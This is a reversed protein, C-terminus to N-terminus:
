GNWGAIQVKFNLFVPDGSSFLDSGNRAASPNVTNVSVNGFNVVTAGASAFISIANSGATNGRWNVGLDEGTVLTSAAQLGSPLTMTAASAGPSNANFAGTVFLFPGLRSWYITVSGGTMGTFTPTYAVPTGPIRRNLIQWNSGDSTLWLCENQTALTTTTVGDITQSSTTAITIQNFTSDTKKLYYTKGAVSAATPLTATFAGGSASLLVVSDNAGISYTTTQSTQVSLPWTWAPVGGVPKLIQPAAGIALRAATSGSSSYIMDGTTTVTIPLKGDIQTQIASTVGNVYGIETATTTAASLVGSGDSVLARSVTLPAMKSFAIAAGAAIDANVISGSLALKSYAIAAAASVDANVISGSLNLKSYAIAAAADIDANVLTAASNKILKGSVGDFKAFGNDTASAPGVVDGAGAPVVWAGDAKLFKGSAADGAAPAPVLGKTGGSGSDGVFSNLIATAQAPSLDIPAGTGSGAARGKITAQAMDFLNATLVNAAFDLNITATDAVSIAGQLDAGNFQLVDLANVGLLLNASNAENRWSVADTRALRLIGDSAPNATRSKVYLSKFGYATGFDVESLLQFLGGAKQLMGNTVAAAWDTAEAGWDVDDVEPYDYTVGNVTLAISM